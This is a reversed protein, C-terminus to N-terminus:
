AFRMLVVPTQPDGDLDCVIVIHGVAPTYGYAVPVSAKSARSRTPRVDVTGDDNVTVVEARTVRTPVGVVPLPPQCPTPDM